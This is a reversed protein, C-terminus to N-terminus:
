ARFTGHRPRPLLRFLPTLPLNTRYDVFLDYRIDKKDPPDLLTQDHDWNDLSIPEPACAIINILLFVIKQSQM